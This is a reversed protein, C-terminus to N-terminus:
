VPRFPRYLDGLGKFVQFFTNDREGLYFAVLPHKMGSTTISPQKALFACVFGALKRFWVADTFAPLLIIAESVHSAAHERCLREVFGNTLEPTMPPNLFVRGRWPNAESLGDNGKTYHAKAPINPKNGGDSAPDLDIVGMVDIVAETIVGPTRWADDTSVDGLEAGPSPAAVGHAPPKGIAPQAASSTAPKSTPSPEDSKLSSVADVMPPQQGDADRHDTRSTADTAATADETADDKIPKTLFNLAETM